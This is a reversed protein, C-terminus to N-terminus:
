PNNRSALIRTIKQNRKNIDDILPLMAVSTIVMFYQEALVAMGVVLAILGGIIAIERKGQTLISELQAASLQELQATSNRTCNQKTRAKFLSNM